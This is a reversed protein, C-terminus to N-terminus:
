LLIFNYSCVVILFSFSLSLATTDSNQSKELKPNSLTEIKLHLSYHLNIGFSTAKMPVSKNSSAVQTKYM